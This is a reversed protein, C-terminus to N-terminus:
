KQEQFYKDIFHLYLLLGPLHVRKETRTLSCVYFLFEYQLNAFAFYSAPFCAITHELRVRQALMAISGWSTAKLARCVVGLLIQRTWPRMQAAEKGWVEWAHASAWLMLLGNRVAEVKWILDLFVFRCRVMYTLLMMNTVSLNSCFM